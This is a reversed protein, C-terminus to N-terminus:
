LQFGDYFLRDNSMPFTDSDMDIGDTSPHNQADEDALGDCDNDYRDGVIETAGPHVSPNNDNCDGAALSIGDSDVDMGDDSPTGDPAEDALGDCDDDIRNGVIETAGPHVNANTDDCDSIPPANAITSTANASSQAVADDALLLAFAALVPPHVVLCLQPSCASKASHRLTRFDNATLPGVKDCIDRLPGIPVPRYGM